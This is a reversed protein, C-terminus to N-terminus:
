EVNNVARALRINRPRESAEPTTMARAAPALPLARAPVPWAAAAPRAAASDAAPVQFSSGAAGAVALGDLTTLAQVPWSIIM